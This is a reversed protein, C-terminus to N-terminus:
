KKHKISSVGLCSTFIADYSKKYKFIRLKFTDGNYNPM